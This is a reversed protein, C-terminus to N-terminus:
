SKLRGEEKKLCTVVRAFAKVRTEVRVAARTPLLMYIYKRERRRPRRSTGAADREAPPKKEKLVVPLPQNHEDNPKGDWKM